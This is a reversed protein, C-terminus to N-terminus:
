KWNKDGAAAEAAQAAKPMADQMDGGTMSLGKINANFFEDATEALLASMLGFKEEAKMTKNIGPLAGEAQLVGLWRIAYEMSSQRVISNQRTDSYNSGGSAAAAVAETSPASSEVSFSKMDINKYQGNETFSFAVTDGVGAAPKVKGAGYKNGNVVVGYMTGVKTNYSYVENVTGVIKSM